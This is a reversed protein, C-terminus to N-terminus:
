TSEAKIHLYATYVTLSHSQFAESISNYGTIFIFAVIM